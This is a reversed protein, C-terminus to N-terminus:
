LPSHREASLVPTSSIEESLMGLEGIITQPWDGGMDAKVPRTQGSADALREWRQKM